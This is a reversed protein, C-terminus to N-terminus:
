VRAVPSVATVSKLRKQFGQPITNTRPAIKGFAKGAQAALAADESVKRKPKLSVVTGQITVISSAEILRAM